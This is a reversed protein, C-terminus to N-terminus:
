SSLGSPLVGVAPEATLNRALRLAFGVRGRDWPTFRPLQWLDSAVTSAGPATTVAADFGASAVINRAAAGYDQGPKGNPYAFLRIPEGVLAELASKSNLM